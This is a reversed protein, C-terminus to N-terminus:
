AEAGEAGGTRPPACAAFKLKSNGPNYWVWPPFRWLLERPRPMGFFHLM